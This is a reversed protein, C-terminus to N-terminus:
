ASLTRIPAVVRLISPLAEQKRFLYFHYCDLLFLAQCILFVNLLLTEFGLISEIYLFAICAPAIPPLTNPAPPPPNIINHEYCVTRYQGHM